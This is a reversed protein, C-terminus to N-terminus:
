PQNVTIAMRSETPLCFRGYNVARGWESTPLCAAIDSSVASPKSSARWKGKVPTQRDSQSGSATNTHHETGTETPVSRNNGSHNYYFVCLIKLHAATYSSVLSAFLQSTWTTSSSYNAQLIFVHESPSMAGTSEDYNSLQCVWKHTINKNYQHYLWQFDM